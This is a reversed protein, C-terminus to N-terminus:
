DNLAILEKLFRIEMGCLMNTASLSAKLEGDSSKAYEVLADAKDNILNVMREEILKMQKPNM